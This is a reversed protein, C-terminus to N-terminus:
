CLPKSNQTHAPAVTPPRSKESTYNEVPQVVNTVEAREIPCQAFFKSKWLVRILSELYKLVLNRLLVVYPVCSILEPVM